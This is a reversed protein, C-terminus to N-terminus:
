KHLSELRREYKKAREEALRTCRASDDFWQLETCVEDRAVEAAVNRLAEARNISPEM